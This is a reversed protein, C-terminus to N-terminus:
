YRAETETVRVRNQTNTIDTETVYVKSNRIAGEISAGQVDQTYQVPTVLNNIASTSPTSLSGFDFGIDGLGGNSTANHIQQIQAVGSALVAASTTAAMAIQGFITLYSNAPNFASAIAGGINGAGIIAIKM